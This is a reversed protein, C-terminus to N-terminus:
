SPEDGLSRQRQRRNLVLLRLVKLTPPSQHRIPRSLCVIAKAKNKRLMPVEGDDWTMGHVKVGASTLRMSAKHEIKAELLLRM